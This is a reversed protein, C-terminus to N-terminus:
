PGPLLRLVAVLSVTRLLHCRRSKRRSTTPHSLESTSTHDLKIRSKLISFPHPQKTKRSTPPAGLLTIVQILTIQIAMVSQSLLQRLSPHTGHSHITRPHTVALSNNPTKPLNENSNTTFSQTLPGDGRPIM